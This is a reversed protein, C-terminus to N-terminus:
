VMKNVYIGYYQVTLSLLLYAIFDAIPASTWVGILGFLKPVIILMPILLIVQRLLGLLTAYKAKGIAKNHNKLPLDVFVIKNKLL